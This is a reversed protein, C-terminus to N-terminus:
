SDIPEGAAYARIAVFHKIEEATWGLEAAHLGILHAVIGGAEVPSLKGTMLDRYAGDIADEEDLPSSGSAMAGSALSPDQPNITV